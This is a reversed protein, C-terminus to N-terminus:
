SMKICILVAAEQVTLFACSGMAASKHSTQGTFTTKTMRRVSAASTIAPRASAGNDKGTMAAVGEAIDICAASSIDGVAMISLIAPSMGHQGDFAGIGTSQSLHTSIATQMDFHKVPM